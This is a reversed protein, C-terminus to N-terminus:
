LSGDNLDLVLTKMIVTLSDKIELYKEESDITHAIMPTELRHALLAERVKQAEESFSAEAMPETRALVQNM